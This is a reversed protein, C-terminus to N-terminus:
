VALRTLSEGLSRVLSERRGGVVRKKRHQRMREQEGNSRGASRIIETMESLHGEVEKQESM